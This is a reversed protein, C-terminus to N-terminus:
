GLLGEFRDFLPVFVLAIVTMLKILINISPGAADKFPDGVTDGVVAARHASSGHRRFEGEEIHKKANDWASGANLMFIAMLVGRSWLAVLMGGLAQTGLLIGVAIPSLVAIVGPLIMRRLADSASIAVCKKYDPLETGLLINPNDSFQRRVEAIMRNAAHSVSNITLASFLFPLVGGVFMCVIVYPNLADIM